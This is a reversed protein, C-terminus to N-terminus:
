AFVAGRQTVQHQIKRMVADAIANADQGPAANVTISFGGYNTTSAQSGPVTVTMGASVAGIADEVLYSNDRIGKALGAMFDPMWTEYNRLPGEDPRSFHLFNAIRKGINSVASTVKSIMSNIGDIFGQIMDRGWSKAKNIVSTFGSTINGWLNSFFGGVSDIAGKVANFATSFGSSISSAVASATNRIGSFINSFFNGVSQIANNVTNKAALFREAFWVSVNTITNKIGEFINGFFDGIAKLVATSKEQMELFREAFWVSVTAIANTIWDIVGQVADGVANFVGMVKDGVGSFFEGVASFANGVATKIQDFHQVVQIIAYILLEVLALILGIPNATLVINLAGVAATIAVIAGVVWQYNDIMWSFVTAMTEIGTLVGDLAETLDVGTLWDVLSQIAEVLRGTFAEWDVSEAWDTVKGSITDIAPALAELISSKINMIATNIPEMAEGLEAQADKLRLQAENAERMSETMEDYIGLSDGYTDNLTNAILDAREQTTTLEQLKLNFADESIGAWNLADALVGTVKAVQASENISETLSEIPISDGYASWVATAARASARVTDVSVQMGLLNTIANTAMQDDGLYSYFEAYQEKAFEVSYGFSNASSALTAQMTRYERTAESLDFLSSVLDGIASLAGQIAGSILNSLAGKMVTFGDSSKKASDGTDELSKDLEDAADSAGQLETRSKKLDGSLSSIQSALAKAEKSNKGYQIVADSYARKVTDLAQQQESITSTLRDTASDTQTMESRISALQAEMKNLAATANNVNTRAKSVATSQKDYAQAAKAAEVSNEGYAQAAQIAAQRLEEQLKEEDALSKTLVDVRAKQNDIQKTLVAAQAALKDMSKDNSDFASTVAKLESSLERSVQTITRLSRTFESEGSATLRIGVEEAM